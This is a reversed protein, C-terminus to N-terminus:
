PGGLLCLVLEMCVEGIVVNVAYLTLLEFQVRLMIELVSCGVIGIVVIIHDHSIIVHKSQIIPSISWEYDSDIVIVWLLDEASDKKM